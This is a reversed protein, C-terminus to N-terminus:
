WIYVKWCFVKGVAWFKHHPFGVAGEERGHCCTDDMMVLAWLKRRAAFYRALGRFKRKAASNQYKRPIEHFKASILFEGAILVKKVQLRMKIM